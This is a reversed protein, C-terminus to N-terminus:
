PYETSSFQKEKWEFANETASLFQKTALSNNDKRVRGLEPSSEWCIFHCVFCDGFFLLGNMVKKNNSNNSNHKKNTSKESTIRNKNQTGLTM